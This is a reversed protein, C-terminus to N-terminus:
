IDPLNDCMTKLLANVKLIQAETMGTFSQTFLPITAKEVLHIMQEGKSTLTVLTVRGDEAMAGTTVLEREKMRHIIKTTTPLKSLCHFALDSISQPNKDKLSFLVRYLTLDLGMKKLIKEMALSYRHNTMALWYFPFAERTFESGAPHYKELHKPIKPMINDQIPTAIGTTLM